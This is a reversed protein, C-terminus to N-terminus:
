DRSGGEVGSAGSEARRKLGEAEMGLYRKVMGGYLRGVLGGLVGATEFELRVRSGGGPLPEIDHRATNRAGAGTSVWTFSRGPELDTVVWETEPLRPQKLRTRSGPRLPGDDLRRAFTVSETWEPWYEVDSLVEWVREPSAAIEITKTQEMLQDDCGRGSKSLITGM